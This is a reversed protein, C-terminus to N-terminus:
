QPGPVQMYGEEHMGLNQIYWTATANAPTQALSLSSMHVVRILSQIDSASISSVPNMVIWLFMAISFM